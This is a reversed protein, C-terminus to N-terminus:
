LRAAIGGERVCFLLRILHLQFRDGIQQLVVLAYLGPHQQCAVKVSRQHVVLQELVHRSSQSHGICRAAIPHVQVVITLIAAHIQQAFLIRDLIGADIDGIQFRLVPFLIRLIPRVHGGRGDGIGITPAIGIRGAKSVRGVDRASVQQLQVVVCRILDVSKHGLLTLADIDLAGFPAAICSHLVDALIILRKLIRDIGRVFVAVVGADVCRALM